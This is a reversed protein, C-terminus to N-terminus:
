MHQSISTRKKYGYVIYSIVGADELDFPASIANTEYFSQTVLDCPLFLGIEKLAQADSSQINKVDDTFVFRGIFNLNDPM